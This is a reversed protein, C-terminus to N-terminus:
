VNKKSGHFNEGNNLFEALKEVNILYKKVAMTHVIKNQLCWKRLCNQSLNFNNSAEKITLMTPVTTM